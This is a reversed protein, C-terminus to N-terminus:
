KPSVAALRGIERDLALLNANDPARAAIFGRERRAAGLDGELLARAAAWLHVHLSSPSQRLALDVDRRLIPLPPPAALLDQWATLHRLVRYGGAALRGNPGAADVYVAARDDLYVMAWRRDGAISLGFPGGRADTMIWAFGYKKNLAAFAAPDTEAKWAEEMFEPPYLYATRGDIFVRIQPAFRWILYGGFAANNWVPGTLGNAEIFDGAAVPIWAPDFGTGVPAVQQAMLGLPAALAAAGALWPLSRWGRCSPALRRALAPASAIVFVPALRFRFLALAMSGLLLGPEYPDALASRKNGGRVIAALTMLMLLAVAPDYRVLLDFTAPTWEMIYRSHDVVRLPGTFIGLGFASLSTAAFAAGLIAVAGRREGSPRVAACAAYWAIIGAGLVAFGHVNAWLMQLLILAFLLNRGGGRRHRDILLLEAALIPFGLTAPRVLLWPGLAILSLALVFWELTESERDSRLWMLRLLAGLCLALLLHLGFPSAQHALYLLVDSAYEYPVSKGPFTFSFSDTAPFSHSRVVFRGVALHWPLDPDPLKRFSAAGVGAILGLCAAAKLLKPGTRAM